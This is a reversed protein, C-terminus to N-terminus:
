EDDTTPLSFYITTGRGPQSKAWIRGGHREVIKKCIALGIGTGEYENRLHLRQFILFIQEAHKQDFGIGNDQVSIIWNNDRQQASVKVRPPEPGRYKLANSILNQLLTFLQMEDGLVEPLGSGTIEARNEKIKRDLKRKIDILVNELNVETRTLDGGGVRSYALLDNLLKQMHGTGETIHEMFVAAKDDLRDHYRRALLQVFSSVTRLPEQLDHSVISAFHQLDENSRQLKRNYDELQRLSNQLEMNLSKIEEEAKKQDTIDRAVHIAATLEGAENFLPSTTVLFHGDMRSEFLEARHETQERCTMIYPCNEVPSDTGHIIEFCKKGIFEEPLLGVKKAMAQNVRMIRYDPDLIAIMDPVADFTMEWEQKAQLVKSELKKRETIDLYASIGGLVQGDADFLATSAGLLIKKTGNALRMELEIDGVSTAHSVAYNLPLDDPNLRKGNRFVEFKPIEEKLGSVQSVNTGPTIGMLRAAALNTTVTLCEPDYAMWIPIPSFDLFQKVLRANDRERKESELLAREVRYKFLTEVYTSALAQVAELQERGFGGDRNGLAILGTVKNGYKLPVSLFSTLASHGEPTDISYPHSAPDNILLSEGESLVKGYLGANRFDGPPEGHSTKGPLSYQFWGPDSIATEHLLNDQGIEGIFGFRSNTVQEAVRLTEEALEEESESQLGALFIVNIGTLVANTLSIRKETEKRETIDTLTLIGLLSRDDIDRALTGGISFIRQWDIDRRRITVECDRLTEGRLIRSLPWKDFPLIGDEVTSLEFSDQFDMLARQYEEESTFGFQKVAAPNWYILNGALDSVIVGEALNNLTAKLQAENQQIRNEARKRDTIDSAYINVFNGDSIPVLNLALITEGYREEIERITGAVITDMVQTRVYEPLLEGVNTGWSDLLAGSAINAYLIVGERSIRLVPFPNESPFRAIQRIKEEVLKRDTIDRAVGQVGAILSDRFIPSVNIEYEGVTSDSRILRLEFPKIKRGELIQELAAEARPVDEPVIFDNMSGGIVDEQSYGMTSVAPSVYDIRGSPNIQFIVDISTEAITRFREESEALAMQLQKYPTTERLSLVLGIVLGNEDKVPALAWDWFTLGQEPQDRYRFSKDKYFVSEGTDRVRRFIAKNEEHPFLDFHNQGILDNTDLGCGNVYAKNVWIFNFDRDLYAMQVDTHDIIAQLAATKHKLSLGAEDFEPPLDAFGIQLSPNQIRDKSKVPLSPKKGEKKKVGNKRASAKRGTNKVVTNLPDDTNKSTRKGANSSSGTSKGRIARPAINKLAAPNYDSDQDVAKKAPKKEPTARKKPAM